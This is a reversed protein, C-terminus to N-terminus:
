ARKIGAQAGWILSAAEHRDFVLKTSSCDPMKVQEVPIGLGQMLASAAKMNRKHLWVRFEESRFFEALNIPRIPFDRKLEKLLVGKAPLVWIQAALKRYDCSHVTGKKLVKTKDCDMYRAFDLITHFNLKRLLALFDEGKFFKDLVQPVIAQKSKIKEIIEDASARPWIYEAMVELDLHRCALDTKGDSAKRKLEIGLAKTFEVPSSIQKTELWDQFRRSYFFKNLPSPRNKQGFDERVAKALEETILGAPPWVWRAIEELSVRTYKNGRKDQRVSVPANIVHALLQLPYLRLERDAGPIHELAWPRLKKTGARFLQRLPKDPRRDYGIVRHFATRAAEDFFAEAM